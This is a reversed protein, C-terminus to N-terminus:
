CSKFSQILDVGILDRASLTEHSARTWRQDCAAAKTWAAGMARAANSNMKM